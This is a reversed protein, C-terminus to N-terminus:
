HQQSTWLCLFGAHAVIGTREWFGAVLVPCGGMGSIQKRHKDALKSSFSTEIAKYCTLVSSQDPNWDTVFWIIMWSLVWSWFADTSNRHIFELNISYYRISNWPWTQNAFSFFMRRWMKLGISTLLIVLHSNVNTRCACLLIVNSIRKEPKLFCLYCFM